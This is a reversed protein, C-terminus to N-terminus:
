KAVEARVAEILQEAYTLNPNTLEDAWADMVANVAPYRSELADIIWLRVRAREPSRDMQEVTELMEILQETPREAVLAAAEANATATTTM